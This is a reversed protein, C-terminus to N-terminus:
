RVPKVDLVKIHFQLTKGALPHNLDLVVSEPKVEKITALFVRGSPDRGSLRMGVKPEVAPPLQSTPVEDVAEPDVTGYGEKPAITIDREDGARLGMLQRELGPIIQNRGTTYEYPEGEDSRDVEEGDVSLTYAFGCSRTTM